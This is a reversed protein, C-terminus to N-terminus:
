FYVSRGSKANLFTQITDANLNTTSDEILIEVNEESLFSRELAELLSTMKFCGSCLVYSNNNVVIIKEALALFGGFLLFFLSGFM